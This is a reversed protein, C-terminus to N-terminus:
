VDEESGNGSRVCMSVKEGHGVSDVAGEVVFDTGGEGGRAGHGRRLGVVSWM